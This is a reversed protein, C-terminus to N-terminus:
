SVYEVPDDKRYEEDIIMVPKITTGNVADSAARNIDEFKYYKILKDFPFKGQNYYDVLKPVALQPVVNGLNVGLLKRTGLVLEGLPNFEM